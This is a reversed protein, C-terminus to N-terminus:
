SAREVGVPQKRGSNEMAQMEADYDLEGAFGQPSPLCWLFGTLLGETCSCLQMCQM